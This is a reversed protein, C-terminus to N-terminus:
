ALDAASFHGYVIWSNLLFIACLTYLALGYRQVASICEKRTFFSERRRRAARASPLQLFFSSLAGVGAAGDLVSRSVALFHRTAVAVIVSAPAGKGPTISGQLRSSKKFNLVSLVTTRSSPALLHSGVSGCDSVPFHSIALSELSVMVGGAEEGERISPVKSM